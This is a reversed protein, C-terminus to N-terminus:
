RALVGQRLEPLFKEFLVLNQLDALELLYVLVLAYSRSGSTSAQSCIALRDAPHECSEVRRVAAGLGAVPIVLLLCLQSPEHILARALAHNLPQFLGLRRCKSLRTIELYLSRGRAGTKTNQLFNSQNHNNHNILRSQANTPELLYHKALVYCFSSSHLPPPSTMKSVVSSLKFRLVMGFCTM